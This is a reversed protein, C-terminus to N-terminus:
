VIIGKRFELGKEQNTSNMSNLFSAYNRFVNWEAPEFGLLIFFLSFLGFFYSKKLIVNKLYSIFLYFFSFFGNHIDRILLRLYTEMKFLVKTKCIVIELRAIKRRKILALYYYIFIFFMYTINDRKKITLIQSYIRFM